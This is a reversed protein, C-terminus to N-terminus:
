GRPARVTGEHHQGPKLRLIEHIAARLLTRSRSTKPENRALALRSSELGAGFSAFNATELCTHRACAAHASGVSEDHASQLREKVAESSGRDCSRWGKGGTGAYHAPGRAPTRREAAAVSDPCCRGLRPESEPLCRQGHRACGSRQRYRADM